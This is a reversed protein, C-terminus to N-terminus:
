PKAQEVTSFSKECACLHYRVTALGKPVTKTVRPNKAQCFPCRCHVVDSVYPIDDTIDNAAVPAVAVVNHKFSTQCYRCRRTEVTNGFWTGTSELTSHKCGCKHCAPGNIEEVM